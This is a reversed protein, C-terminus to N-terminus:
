KSVLGPPSLHYFVDGNLHWTFMRLGALEGGKLELALVNLKFFYDQDLGDLYKMLDRCITGKITIVEPMHLSYWSLEVNSRCTLTDLNPDIADPTINALDTITHPDRQKSSFLKSLNEQMRQSESGAGRRSWSLPYLRLLDHHARHGAHREDAAPSTSSTVRDVSPPSLGPAYHLAVLASDTSHVQNQAETLLTTLHHNLRKDDEVLLIKM